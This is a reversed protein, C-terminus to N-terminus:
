FAFTFLVNKRAERKTGKMKELRTFDDKKALIHNKFLRNGPPPIDDLVMVHTSGEFAENKRKLEDTRTDAIWM